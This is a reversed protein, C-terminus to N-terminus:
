VPSVARLRTAPRASALTPTSQLPTHHRPSTAECANRLPAHCNEIAFIKDYLDLWTPNLVEILNIKWQRVYHKLTKERQIASVITEHLEFWVLRHCKYRATFSKPHIANRHEWARGPLDSTVGIYIVGRPKNSMMYVHASM